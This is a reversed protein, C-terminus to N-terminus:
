KVLKLDNPHIAYLASKEYEDSYSPFDSCWLYCKEKYEFSEFSDFYVHKGKLHGVNSVVKLEDDFKLNLIEEKSLSM